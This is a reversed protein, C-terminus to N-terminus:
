LVFNLLIESAQSKDLLLQEKLSDLSDFKQEERLSKVFKITIAKGYIDAEFDFLHCEVSQKKGDVTPKFGINLMGGYEKGEISAMVAYVGDGPLIKYDQAIEINATPFGITRGKKAGHIVQGNLSYPRGLLSLALQADRSKLAERIKTSSIGVDDIEQKQIENVEYGFESAHEKLFTLNGERNNGFHHDYGIFITKAGINQVLVQDLYERASLESFTKTFPIKVVFDIGLEGVLECREDFTNLLKLSTNPNIILRPHPWFTILVSKGEKSKAKEVVKRLIAQHGLHVGDFTGVTVVTNPDYQVDKLHVLKAM